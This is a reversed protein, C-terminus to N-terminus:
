DLALTVPKSTAEATFISGQDTNFIRPKGFRLLAEELAAAGDDNTNSPAYRAASRARDIIAVLHSARVGDPHLGTPRGIGRAAEGTGSGTFIARLVELAIKAKFAVDFKKRSKMM